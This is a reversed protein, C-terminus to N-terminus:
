DPVKASCSFTTSVTISLLAMSRSRPMVMRALFQATLQSPVWMLMTSVGPWASKPPSTSRAKDMTSPTTSNISACSPGMGCVRKTVLFAKAKPRFGMTTTLLTSLGPELGVWTILSAKSRNALKPAVSSCNSNGTTYAEPMLPQVDNSSPGAPSCHPGSMDARNLVTSLCTGACFPSGAAGKCNCIEASSKEVKTPRIPTPRMLWPVILGLMSTKTMSPVSPLDTLPRTLWTKVKWPKSRTCAVSAPGPSMTSILPMVSMPMPTVTVSGSLGAGKGM